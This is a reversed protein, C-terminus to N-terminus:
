IMRDKERSSTKQRDRQRHTRRDTQMDNDNSYTRPKKSRSLASEGKVELKIKCKSRRRFGDRLTAYLVQKEGQCKKIVKTKSRYERRRGIRGWKNKNSDLRKVNNIKKM